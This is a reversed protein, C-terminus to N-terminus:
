KRNNDDGTIGRAGCAEQVMGLEVSSRACACRPRPSTSRKPLHCRLRGAVLRVGDGADIAAQLNRLARQQDAQLEALREEADLTRGFTVTFEHRDTHWRDTPMLLGAPDAYRRGIPRYLRGARLADRAVFWLRLEYRTRQVRGDDDLM